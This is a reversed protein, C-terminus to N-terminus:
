GGQGEGGEPSQPRSRAKSGASKRGGAKQAPSGTPSAELEALRQSLAELKERTRALVLRQVEFEERTVLDLRDLGSRLVARFNQELEERMASLSAPVSEALKRALEEISPKESNRNM